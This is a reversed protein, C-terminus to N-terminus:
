KIVNNLVIPQINSGPGQPTMVTIAGSPITITISKIAEYIASEENQAEAKIVADIDTQEVNKIKNAFDILRKALAGKVLM